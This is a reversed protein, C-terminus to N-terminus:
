RNIAPHPRFYKMSHTLILFLERNVSQICTPVSNCYCTGPCVPGQVPTDLNLHFSHFLICSNKNMGLRESQIDKLTNVYWTFINLLCISHIRLLLLSLATTHQKKKKRTCPSEGIERKFISPPFVHKFDQVDNQPIFHLIETSLM